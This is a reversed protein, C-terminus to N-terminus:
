ERQLAALIKKIDARYFEQRRLVMADRPAQTPPQPTALGTDRLLKREPRQKGRVHARIPRSATADGSPYKV